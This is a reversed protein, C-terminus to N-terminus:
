SPQGCAAVTLTPTPSSRATVERSSRSVSYAPLRVVAAIAHERRASSMVVASPPPTLTAHVDVGERGLVRVLAPPDIWQVAAEARTSVTGYARTVWPIPELQGAFASGQGSPLLLDLM